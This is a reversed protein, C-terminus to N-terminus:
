PRDRGPWGCRCQESYLDAAADDSGLGTRMGLLFGLIGGVVLQTGFYWLFVRLSSWATLPLPERGVATIRM